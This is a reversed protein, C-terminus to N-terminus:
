VHGMGGSVPNRLRKEAKDLADLSSWITYVGGVVPSSFTSMARAAGAPHLNEPPVELKGNPIMALHLATERFGSATVSLGGGLVGGTALIFERGALDIIRSANRVRITRLHKGDVHCGDVTTDVYLRVGLRIAETCLVDNLRIATANPPMGPAETVPCGLERSFQRVIERWHRMGLSSPFICIDPQTIQQQTLQKKIQEICSKRIEEQDLLHAADLQTMVRQSRHGLSIMFADAHLGPRERRLNEKVFAPQFDVLENFGVILAHGQDLIPVLTEPYLATRKVWGSGTVIAVPRDPDGQYPYGLQETLKKFSAMAGSIDIAQNDSRSGFHDTFNEFNPFQDMVGTAQMLKGTGSAVLATSLGHSKAGIAALLGALGEGIVIIDYM